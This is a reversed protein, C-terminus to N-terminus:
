SLSAIAPTRSIRRHGATRTEGNFLACALRIEIKVHPAKATKQKAGVTGYFARSPRILRFLIVSRRKGNYFRWEGAYRDGVVKDCNCSRLLSSFQEVVQEPSFPPTVERLADV